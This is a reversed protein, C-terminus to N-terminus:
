CGRILRLILRWTELYFFVVSGSLSPHLM